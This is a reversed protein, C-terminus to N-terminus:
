SDSRDEDYKVFIPYLLVVSLIAMVKTCECAIGVHLAGDRRHIGGWTALFRCARRDGDVLHKVNLTRFATM